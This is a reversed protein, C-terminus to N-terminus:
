MDPHRDVRVDGILKWDLNNEKLQLRLPTPVQINLQIGVIAFSSLEIKQLNFETEAKFFEVEEGGGLLRIQVPVVGTDLALFRICFSLSLPAPFKPVLIADNYVGILFQKGNSEQRIDDCVIVHQVQIKSKTKPGPM